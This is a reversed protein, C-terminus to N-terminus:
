NVPVCEFQVYACTGTAPLTCDLVTNNYVIGYSCQFLPIIWMQEYALEQLEHYLENQADQDVTSNIASLLENFDPDTVRTGTLMSEISYSSLAASADFNQTGALVSIDTSGEVQTLQIWTMFDYVEIELEIGIEALEAQVVQMMTEDTNMAVCHITFGDPYNSEAMCQKAYEVDYDFSGVSEYKGTFDEALISTMGTKVLSGYVVAAIGEADLCHAVAERVKPDQFYECYSGLTVAAVSNIEVSYCSTTDAPVIDGELAREYDKYDPKLVLDLEGNEFAIFMATANSYYYFTIEDWQPQNDADWYDDRARFTCHAGDVNEVLEYASSTSPTDFWSPDDSATNQVASKNVLCVAALWTYLPAYVYSTKLIVTLGDDEVYSQDFDVCVYHKSLEYGVANAAYYISYLVDEGTMQDGDQFYIGDRLVIKITTDDVWEISEALWPTLTGGADTTALFEYALNLPLGGNDTPSFSQSSEILGIRLVKEGDAAPEAAASGSDAAASESDTQQSGGCACLALLMALSLILAICKKM